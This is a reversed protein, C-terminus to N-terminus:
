YKISFDHFGELEISYAFKVGSVHAWKPGKHLWSLFRNLTPENGEAVVEVRGDYLNKVWGTLGLSNALHRTNGRFFVGQVRGSVFAHLQKKVTM